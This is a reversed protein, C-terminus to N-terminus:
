CGETDYNYLAADRLCDISESDYCAISWSELYAVLQERTANLIEQLSNM